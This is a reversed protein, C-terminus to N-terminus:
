AAVKCYLMSSMNGDDNCFVVGFAEKRALTFSRSSSIGAIRSSSLPRGSCCKGTAHTFLLMPSKPM